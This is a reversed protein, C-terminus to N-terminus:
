NNADTAPIIEKNNYYDKVKKNNMLGDPIELADNTLSDTVNMGNAEAIIVANQITGTHLVSIDWFTQGRKCEVIM